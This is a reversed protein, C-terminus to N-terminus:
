KGGFGWACGASQSRRPTSIAGLWISLCCSGHTGPAVGGGHGAVVARSWPGCHHCSPTRDGDGASPRSGELYAIQGPGASFRKWPGRRGVEVRGEGLAGAALAGSGRPCPAVM